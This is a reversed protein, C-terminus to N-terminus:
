HKFCSFNEIEEIKNYPITLTKALIKHGNKIINYIISVENNISKYERAFMKLNSISDELAIKHLSYIFREIILIINGLEYILPAVNIDETMECLDEIVKKSLFSKEKLLSERDVILKFNGVMKEPNLINETANFPIMNIPFGSHMSFNRLKELFRYSFYNDYFKSKLNEFELAEKGERGFDRKIHIDSSDIFFKFSSLFNFIIRNINIFDQDTLYKGLNIRTVPINDLKKCLEDFELLNQQFYIYIIFHKYYKSIVKIDKEILHLTDFTIEKIDSFSNNELSCLRIRNDLIKEEQNM